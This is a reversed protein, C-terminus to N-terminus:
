GRARKTKVLILYLCILGLSTGLLAGGLVDTLWHEGLFIRSLFMFFDFTLILFAFIYKLEKSLKSSKWIAFLLVASIFTVRAVHGSPYSFFGRSIEGSPFGFHLNTKLFEASPGNQFIISKGVIEFVATLAYFFLVYLKRLIRISFYLVLLFLSATEATGIISFVSFPTIIFDPITKQLFLTTQYDLDSFM